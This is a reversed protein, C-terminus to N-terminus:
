IRKLGNPSEPNNTPAIGLLPEARDDLPDNPPLENPLPVHPESTAGPGVAPKHEPENVIESKPEEVPESPHPHAVPQGAVAPALQKPQTARGLGDNIERLRAMAETLIHSFGPGVGSVLQPIQLLKHVEDTDFLKNM